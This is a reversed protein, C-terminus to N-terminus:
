CKGIVRFSGPAGDSTSRAACDVDLRSPFTSQRKRDAMRRGYVAALIVSDHLLCIKWGAM